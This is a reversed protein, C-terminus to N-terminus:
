YMAACCRGVAGSPRSLSRSFCRRSRGQACRTRRWCCCNTDFWSGPHLRRYLM